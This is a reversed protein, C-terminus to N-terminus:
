EKSILKSLTEVSEGIRPGARTLLNDDVLYIRNNKVASIGQWGKRKRVSEATIGSSAPILIVDPNRAIISEESVSPYSQNIDSFVNVNGTYSILDNVFSKNGATMFPSSWVERYVKLTKSSKKVKSLRKEMEKVVKKGNEEHGTILAIDLIEKKVENISTAKSVYYKIRYKEFQPILHDHMTENIFVFDPRFSLIRELSLTKGDFGGVKPLKKVELPYDCLDTCAAVQKGAGVAFLIETNSPSLSVIRKPYASLSFCLLSISFLIFIKKM